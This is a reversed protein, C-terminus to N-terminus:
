NNAPDFHRPPTFERIWKMIFPAMQDEFPEFNSGVVKKVPIIGRISNTLFVEDAVNLDLITLHKEVITIQKDRLIRIINKRMIGPLCGGFVPPTFVTGAHVIFINAMSGEIIYGDSSRLLSDDWKNQKAFRAAMIYPLSNASKIRTLPSAVIPVHHYIGIRKFPKMTWPDAELETAEILFCPTDSLPQYAGSGDRFVTIRVRAFGNLDNERLVQDLQSSIKPVWVAEDFDFGLIDMGDMMRELHDGMFHPKGDRVLISEFVADGFRFARSQLLEIEKPDTVSRANYNLVTGKPM